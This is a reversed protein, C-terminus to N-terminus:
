MNLTCISSFSSGTSWDSSFFVQKEQLHNKQFDKRPSLRWLNKPYASETVEKSRSSVTM